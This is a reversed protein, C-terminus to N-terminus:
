RWSSIAPKGATERLESMASLLTQMSKENEEIREDISQIQKDQLEQIEKTQALAGMELQNEDLQIEHVQSTEVIKPKKVRKVNYVVVGFACILLIAISLSVKRKHEPKVQAWLQNAKQKM